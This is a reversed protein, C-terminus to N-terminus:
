EAADASALVYQDLRARALALQASAWGDVDVRPAFLDVTGAGGSLAELLHEAVGEGDATPRRVRAIGLGGVHSAATLAHYRAAPDKSGALEILHGRVEVIAAVSVDPAMAGIVCGEAAHREDRTWGIGPELQEVADFWWAAAVEAVAAIPAGRLVALPLALELRVHEAWARASDAGWREAQRLLDRSYVAGAWLRRAVLAGKPPVFSCLRRTMSASM